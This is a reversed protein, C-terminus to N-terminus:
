LTVAISTLLSQQQQIIERIISADTEHGKGKEQNIPQGMTVSPLARSPQGLEETLPIAEGLPHPTNATAAPDNVLPSTGQAAQTAQALFQEFTNNRSM